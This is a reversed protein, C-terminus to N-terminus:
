SISLITFAPELSLSHRYLIDLFEGGWRAYFSLFSETREQLGEGPFLASRLVQIQRREEEHKKREARLLKKELEQLSNITKAQLADIHQQLSKDIRGAKEKLHDYLHNAEALEKELRVHGNSNQFILRDLLEQEPRFLDSVSLGLKQLPEQWKQEVLLFSNRLVLVPYPVGYHDFLDRFELWYALEGGGGIFAVNPLLTEQLLGRLIVNPSFRGPHAQLEEKIAAPPFSLDRGVVKWEEGRREIRERINGELYFLNVPRPNAQVKYHESLRQVTKEVIASPTHRFLDDEFVPLLPRKWEARDPILVVLGYKGFLTHLLRFTATQIDPSEAYCTELMESLAKGHPLVGLEGEIRQILTDLGNPAMRGVAGTQGTNWELKEGNLWLHGLEELDADESGMYFVPVFRYQPLSQQLDAALRIAHLIKYLFYLPGTFLAPQHATCITFTHAHTLERINATVAEAPSVSAYQAQLGGVLLSRDVPFQQRAAIAAEIGEPSVPHKYFPQLNESRTLYDLVIKSFYGTEGYSLNTATCDMM